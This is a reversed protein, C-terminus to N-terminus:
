KGELAARARDIIEDLSDLDDVDGRDAIWQLAAKLREIEDAAERLLEPREVIVVPDPWSAVERLREVISM